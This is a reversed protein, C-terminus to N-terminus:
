LKMEGNWEHTIYMWSRLMRSSVTLSHTLSNRVKNQLDKPDLFLFRQKSQGLSGGVVGHHVEQVEQHKGSPLLLHQDDPVWLVYIIVRGLSSSWWGMRVVM